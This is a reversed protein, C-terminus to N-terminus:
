YRKYIHFSIFNCIVFMLTMWKFHFYDTLWKQCAFEKEKLFHHCIKRWYNISWVSNWHLRKTLFLCRSKAFTNWWNLCTQFKLAQSSKTLHTKTLNQNWNSSSYKNMVSTVLIEDAPANYTTNAKIVPQFNTEWEIM